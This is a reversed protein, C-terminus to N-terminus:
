SCQVGAVSRAREITQEVDKWDILLVLNADHHAFRQAAHDDLLKDRPNIALAADERSIRVLVRRHGIDNM